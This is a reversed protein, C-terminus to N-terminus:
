ENVASADLLIHWHPPRAAIRQQLISCTNDDAKTACKMHRQKPSNIRRHRYTGARRATNDAM